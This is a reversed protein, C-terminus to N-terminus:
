KKGQPKITIIKVKILLLHVVTKSAANFVGSVLVRATM